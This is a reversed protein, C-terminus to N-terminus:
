KGNIHEEFKLKEAASLLLDVSGNTEYGVKNFDNKRHQQLIMQEYKRMGEKARAVNCPICYWLGKPVSSRPPEMCYIHYAEDCGDCLVIKDDDKDSLCARCLCSPCYWCPKNRQAESAIQSTKLCRIHYYRYPCHVHGCILFRKDDDECAGCLKCLRSLANRSLGPPDKSELSSHESGERVSGNENAEVTESVELRDCVVCNEHLSDQHSKPSEKQVPRCTTCYWSRTPISKVTPQLCSFHYMAECGDCILRRDGNAEQGCQKCPLIKYLGSAETQDPKTSPDVNCSKFQISNTRCVMCYWSRTPIPKIPPQICSLHYMEECGDCMLTQEGNAERGCHKCSFIKYPVSADTQDLKTSPDSNCSTFQVTTHSELSNKPELDVVCNEKSKHEGAGLELDGDIQKQYSARSVSSLSSTLHIINQGAKQMEEWVKQIDQNFSEPSRGYDGNKMKSNILSFDFYTKSKSDPFVKYLFDCLLVFKESRLIDEFANKCKTTNTNANADVQNGDRSGDSASSISSNLRESNTKVECHGEYRDQQNEIVRPGNATNPKMTFGSPGCKLADDICSKIGDGDSISPLQLMNKLVDRWHSWISNTRGNVNQEYPCKSLVTGTIDEMGKTTPDHDAESQRTAGKSVRATSEVQLELDVPLHNEDNAADGNCCNLITMNDTGGSIDLRRKKSRRKMFLNNKIMRSVEEPVNPCKRVAFGGALHWKLRSVGGNYRTLGCWNCQWHLRNGDVMMAHDWGIDRERKRNSNDSAGGDDPSPRPRKRRKYTILGEERASDEVKVAAGNCKREEELM